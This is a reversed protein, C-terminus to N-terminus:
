GPECTYRRSGNVPNFATLVTSHFGLSLNNKGQNKKLPFSFDEHILM